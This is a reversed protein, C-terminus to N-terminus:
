VKKPAFMIWPKEEQCVFPKPEKPLLVTFTTGKGLESEVSISGFHADLISKVICLGLGTGVIQRTRATKVRYFRDFIRPIDEKAIGVGTDSVTVKVCSGEENLAISVNGGEQTYKIANSILNSFVGEMANRDATISPVDFPASFRLDIKKADAEAKMLDTVQHIVEQLSLPEKYQVLKGAEIKSLDLLDKILDLLGKIRERGRTLLEEQKETLDGALRNLIVILQQEVAAIPARLEHAVMAIFESKMKDLEKLASMDQLVSVAGMTEGLDNRIPCTHARLFVPSPREPGGIALEQSLCSYGTEREGITEEIVKSLEAPIPNESLPMGVLSDESVNLLRGAAPNTLVLHGELDCVLVGDGMSTIITRTRSKETAVDRLSKEREGRLFDAERQLMRRELARRVVIRLQDPTFPKPIFDYAGKKMAEVASEVTAYGTIVIALLNPDIKRIQDLVEMGSLGPMMLDLLIVDIREPRARVEEIGQHGNEATLVSWGEKSLIRTCGDRMILEDDIVLITPQDL